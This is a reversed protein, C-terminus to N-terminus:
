EAASHEHTAPRVSPLSKTAGALLQSALGVFIKCVLLCTNTLRAQAPVNHGLWGGDPSVCSSLNKKLGEELSGFGQALGTQVVASAAQMAADGAQQAGLSRNRREPPAYWSTVLKPLRPVSTQCAPTTQGCCTGPTCTAKCAKLLSPHRLGVPGHPLAGAPNSRQQARKCLLCMACRKGPRQRCSRRPLSRVPQYGPCIRRDM